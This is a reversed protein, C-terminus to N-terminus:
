QQVLTRQEYGWVNVHKRKSHRAKNKAARAYRRPGLHIAVVVRVLPL